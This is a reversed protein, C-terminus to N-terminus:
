QSISVSPNVVGTEVSPYISLFQDLRRERGWAADGEIADYQLIVVWGTPIIHFDMDDLAQKEYADFTDVVILDTVMVQISQGFNVHVAESGVLWRHQKMVAVADKKSGFISAPAVRSLEAPNIQLQKM